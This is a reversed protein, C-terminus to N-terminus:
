APFRVNTLESSVLWLKGAVGEDYSKANSTVITPFGSMQGLGDPGIYQGGKVGTHVAAYLQPLAGMEASQAFLSNAMKMMRVGFKSHEMQPGVNQLNTAAYGPHAAVAIGKKGNKRLWRELEYTFLLNALKSQGYAAWKAYSKESQLDDFRITGFRHANSSVNVIRPAPSAELLELLQATLAFHGLHNTGLQMEFGDVTKRYPIAMVGANNILVDVKSYKQAVTGAFDRISVLSALDLMVAEVKAQPHIQRLSLVEGHAKSPDRCAMVVTSGAAVLRRTSELGLGSNAGTIIVVKGQQSGVDAATWPMTRDYVVRAAM